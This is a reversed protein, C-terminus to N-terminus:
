RPPLECQRGRRYQTGGFLRNASHSATQGPRLPADDTIKNVQAIIWAPANTRAAIAELTDDPKATVSIASDFLAIPEKAPVVYKM